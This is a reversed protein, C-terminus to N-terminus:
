TKPMSLSNLARLASNALSASGNYKSHSSWKPFYALVVFHDDGVFPSRRGEGQGEGWPLPSDGQGAQAVTVVPGCLRNM